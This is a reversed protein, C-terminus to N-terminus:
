AYCTSLSNVSFYRVVKKHKVVHLANARVLHQLTAGIESRSSSLNHQLELESVPALHRINAVSPLLAWRHLRGVNYGSSQFELTGSFHVMISREFMMSVTFCSMDAIVDVNM